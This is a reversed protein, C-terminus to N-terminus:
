PDKRSLPAHKHDNKSLKKSISRGTHKWVVALINDTSPLMFVLSPTHTPISLDPAPATVDSTSIHNLVGSVTPAGARACMKWATSAVVM